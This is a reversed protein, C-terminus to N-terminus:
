TMIPFRLQKESVWYSHFVQRQYEQLHLLETQNYFSALWKREPIEHPAVSGRELLPNKTSSLNPLDLFSVKLGESSVACKLSSKSSSLNATSNSFWVPTATQQLWIPVWWLSDNLVLLSIGPRLNFSLWSWGGASGQSICKELRQPEVATVFFLSSM